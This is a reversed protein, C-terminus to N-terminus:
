RRVSPETTSPKEGVVRRLARAITPALRDAGAVTFHVGDARLVPDAVGGPCMVADLDLLRVGSAAAASQWVATVACARAPELRVDGDIVEADPLTNRGTLM